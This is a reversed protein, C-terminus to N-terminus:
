RSMISEIVNSCAICIYNVENDMNTDQNITVEHDRTHNGHLCVVIHEDVSCKQIFWFLILM